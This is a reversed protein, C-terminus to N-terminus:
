NGNEKMYSELLRCLKVTEPHEDAQLVSLMGKVVVTRPKTAAFEQGLVHLASHLEESPLAKSDLLKAIEDCIQEVGAIGQLEISYPFHELFDNPLVPEATESRRRLGEVIDELREVIFRSLKKHDLSVKEIFIYKMYETLMGQLLSACDFAFRDISPGFAEKVTNVYWKFAHVQHHMVINKAEPLQSFAQEKIQMKIFDKHQEFMDFMAVIQLFLREVPSLSEDAAISTLHESFHETYHEYIAVLLKEKSSFYSYISGKAIGARDAIEQISTAHYGKKAFLQMAAEIIRQDKSM